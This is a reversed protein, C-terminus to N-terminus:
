RHEDEFDLDYPETRGIDRAEEKTMSECSQEMESSGVETRTRNNHTWYQTKETHITSPYM